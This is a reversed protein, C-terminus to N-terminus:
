QVESEIAILQIEIEDPFSQAITNEPLDKYQIPITYIGPGLDKVDVYIEITQLQDLISQPGYVRVNVKSQMFVYDLHFPLNLISLNLGEFLRSSNPEIRIKVLVTTINQVSSVGTPLIIKIQREINTNVGDISIEETALNLLEKIISVKGSVTLISPETVIEVIRGTPVGTIRPIIPLVKTIDTNLVPITVQVTEPEISVGSVHNKGEDLASIKARSFIDANADTIDVEVVVQTISDIKTQPGTIQVTTPTITPEGAINGTYLNGIVLAKVNFDKTIITDLTVEIFEPRFSVVSVESPTNILPKIKYTGPKLDAVDLNVSISKSLSELHNAPAEFSVEVQEFDLTVDYNPNLGRFQIQFISTDITKIGIGFYVFIWLLIAIVISSIKLFSNRKLINKIQMM